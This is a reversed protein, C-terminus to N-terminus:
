SSNWGRWPRLPRYSPRSQRCHLLRRLLPLRWRTFTKRKKRPEKREDPAFKGSGAPTRSSITVRQILLIFIRRSPRMALKAFFILRKASDIKKPNRRQAGVERARSFPRARVGGMPQFLQFRKAQLTVSSRTLDAASARTLVPM